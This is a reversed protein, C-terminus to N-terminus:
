TSVFARARELGGFDLESGAEKFGVREALGSVAPGQGAGFELVILSGGALADPAGAFLARYADLGDKGGDLALHPDHARVELPLGGIEDSRIYPPNSVIVDFRGGVPEFWSGQLVTSRDAFGCAELNAATAACATASLDVAVGSASPYEALLACLLAGSGSGLDLIRAPHSSGLLRTALRLVAESDARPDLVDPAVALEVTWFPRRGVIRSAPEGSARRMVFRQLAASQIPSLRVDPDRLLDLANFYGAAFSLLRADAEAEEVGAAGLYARALAIAEGRGVDPLHFRTDSGLM